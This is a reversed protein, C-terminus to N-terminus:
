WTSAQKVLLTRGQKGSEINRHLYRFATRSTTGDGGGLCCERHGNAELDACYVMGTTGEQQASRGRQRRHSDQRARGEESIEEHRHSCTSDLTGPCVASYLAVSCRTLRRCAGDLSSKRRLGTPM